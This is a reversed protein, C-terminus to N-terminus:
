VYGPHRVYQYPGATAVQHGRDTQLRVSTSFYKNSVMAWTFLMSGLFFVVLGILNFAFPFDNTWQLRYDFGAVIFLGIIPIVTLSSVIKDWQKVNEKKKGREEILETPLVIFNITLILICVGLFIWACLWQLTWASILLLGGELIFTILVQLIRRIINKNM